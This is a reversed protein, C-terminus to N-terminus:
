GVDIRRTSPAVKPVTITLVGDRLDATARAGDVPHPFSFARRFSGHGREVRHCREPKIGSDPRTGALSLKDDQVSIELDERALGAVEAVVMYHDPTEYLDLAPVWGAPSAEPLRELREQMILLDRWPDWHLFSVQPDYCMPHFATKSDCESVIGHPPGPPQLRLSGLEQPVM